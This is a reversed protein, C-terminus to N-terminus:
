HRLSWNIKALACRALKRVDAGSITLENPGHLVTGQLSGDKQFTAWGAECALKKDWVVVDCDYPFSRGQRNDLVLIRRGKYLIPPDAEMGDYKPMVELVGHLHDFEASM